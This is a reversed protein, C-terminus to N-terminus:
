SSLTPLGPVVNRFRSGVYLLARTSLVSHRLICSTSRHWLHQVLSVDRGGRELAVVRGLLDGSSVLPDEAHASDGRTAIWEGRLSKVRHTVLFSDRWFSVVEGPRLDRAACQQVTVIDGPWIAPLMSGGTVTLRLSGAARLQGLMLGQRASQRADALHRQPEAQSTTMDLSIVLNGSM